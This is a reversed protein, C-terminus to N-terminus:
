VLESFYKKADEPLIQQSRTQGIFLPDLSSGLDILTRDPFKASLEAIILKSSRGACFLAVGWIARSLVEMIQSYERCAEEWPSLCFDARLMKAAKILPEPGVFVKKRRDEKLAKYFELLVPTTRMMLLSEFHIWTVQRRLMEKMLGYHLPYQCHDNPTFSATEWDGLILNESRGLLAWADKLLKGNEPTGVEREAVCDGIQFIWEIEADGFKTFVFPEQQKLKHTLLEAGEDPTM